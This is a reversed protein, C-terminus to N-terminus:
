PQPAPTIKLIRDDGERASGRGFNSTGVYIAGDPGITMARLRGFRSGQNAGSHFWWEVATVRNPNAENGVTLRMFTQGSLTTFLLNGKLEPFLDANYFALDGPAQSPNWAIIPDVYDPHGPAGVALPWGLNGGKAVASIEDRAGVQAWEGSPGNDAVFLTGDSPRFTLGHPNRLGYAWVRSGAFPNDAPIEGEPTIRLIKGQLDSLYDQARTPSRLDGTSIYLMGDPGFRLRGGNHIMNSDLDDILIEEEGARGNVERFRSVRNILADGKQITHYLYVWPQNVFDPHLALGLLGDERRVVDPFSVWPTPDLVGAASMVRVRGPRETIFLQGDPAFELSWVIELGTAVPTVVVGPPESLFTPAPVQPLEGRLPPALGPIPQASLAEGGLILIGAAAAALTAGAARRLVSSIASPGSTRVESIHQVIVELM